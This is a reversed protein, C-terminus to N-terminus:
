VMLGRPMGSPRPRLGGFAMLSVAVKVRLPSHDLLSQVERPTPVVEGIYKPEGEPINVKEDLRTGNFRAWSKVAKVYSWVTVGSMGTEELDSVLTSVFTMLEAKNMAAIQAPRIHYLDDCIRGIRLFYASGTNHSARLVNSRWARFAPDELFHAYRSHWGRKGEPWREAPDFEPVAKTFKEEPGAM